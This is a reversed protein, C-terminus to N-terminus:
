TDCEEETTPSCSESAAIDDLKELRFFKMPSTADIASVLNKKQVGVTRIEPKSQYSKEQCRSEVVEEPQIEEQPM